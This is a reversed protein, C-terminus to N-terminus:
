RCAANIADSVSSIHDAGERRPPLLATLYAFVLRRTPDAWAICCNSGNHGFTRPSSLRGMPPSGRAGPRPGGLQFGQSWRIPLNLLRDTEGESSPLTAQAITASDVVRVGDLEGGQLLAQYFRALDRATTSIGAAPVVARRAAPRNLGVRVIQDVLASARVPIHRSWLHDPLGLYTDHLGLPRLLGATLADSVPVGGVRRVLEGLIVGYSIVHYAPVQGPPWRPRAREVHRVAREWSMMALADGLMSSSLPVGARHQLVQRITIRDKGHRGFQPWYAAVADDLNLAGQEALQHVLLAVFPKSASFIWFLSDSRCAVSRDLVVRGDRLVCIQAAARRAAVLELARALGASDVGVQEPPCETWDVM